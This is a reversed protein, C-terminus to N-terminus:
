VNLTGSIFIIRVSFYIINKLNKVIGLYIQLLTNGFHQYIVSGHLIGVSIGDRISAFFLLRENINDPKLKIFKEPPRSKNLWLLLYSIFLIIFTYRLLNYSISHPSTCIPIKQDEKM